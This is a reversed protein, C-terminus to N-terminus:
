AECKIVKGLKNLLNLVEHLIRKKHFLVTPVDSAESSEEIWDIGVM